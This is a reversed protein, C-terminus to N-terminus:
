HLGYPFDKKTKYQNNRVERLKKLLKKNQNKYPTIVAIRGFFNERLKRLMAMAIYIERQNYSGSKNHPTKDQNEHYYLDDDM